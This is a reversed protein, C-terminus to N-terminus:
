MSQEEELMLVLHDAAHGPTHLLRLTAGECLV